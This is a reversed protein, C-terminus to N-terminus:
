IIAFKLIATIPIALLVGYFGMLNSFAIVAVIVILPHLGVRHGIIRPTVLMADILQVIVFVGVVGIVQGMGQFRSFLVIASLSGGVVVDMYPIIRFLGAVIGIALGSSLGLVSLGTSYLIALIGAVMLQGKILTRLTDDVRTLFVASPIRLDLPTLRVVWGRIGSWDVLIFFTVFPILLADVLGQVLAPTGRWLGTIAQRLPSTVQSLVNFDTLANNWGEENILHTSMVMQKIVPLWHAYISRGFAPVLSVLEAVQFYIEPIILVAAITLLVIGAILPVVISIIRPIRRKELAVVMPQFLYAFFFSICLPVVLVRFLYAFVSAIGFLVGVFIAM